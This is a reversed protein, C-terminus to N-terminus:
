SERRAVTPWVAEVRDGRAAYVRDYLNVTPDCHPVLFAVRDGLRPLSAGTEATLHGFEDGFRRYRVGPWRFPEPLSESDTAFAKIGADVTVCDGHAASVVTAIVKLSPRFDNYVSSGGSSGVLRYETDMFIYSGAQIETLGVTVPDINYTGTSAGSFIGMDLGKAALESRCAAALGMRERSHALRAEFGAVHASKGSYAQIGRLRLGPLKDINEALAVADPGPIAGFRRDGVDLDLLVDIVKGVPTAAESLLRAELLHGVALLVTGPKNALAVMRRVKEYDVIPSTLLVGNIGAHVLAEAEAVTAACIGIAGAAIQRKAIEPCKHSKAHPRFGCGSARCADAMTKLNWEFEDLDVVLAPTSLEDCHLGIYAEFVM